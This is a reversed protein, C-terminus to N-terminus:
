LRRIQPTTGRPLLRACWISSNFSYFCVADMLAYSTRLISTLSERLGALATAVHSMVPAKANSMERKVCLQARLYAFGLFGGLVLVVTGSVLASIGTVITTAVFYTVMTISLQLFQIFVAAFQSDITAIDRTCRTIVRGIPVM